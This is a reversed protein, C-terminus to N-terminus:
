STAQVHLPTQLRYGGECSEIQLGMAKLRHLESYVRRFGNLPVRQVEPWGREFLAVTSLPEQPALRQQQALALLLRRMPGRRRLDHRQGRWTLWRGQADLTGPELPAEPPAERTQPSLAAWMVEEVWREEGPRWALPDADPERRGDHASGSLDLAGLKAALQRQRPSLSAPSAYGPLGAAREACALLLHGLPWTPEGRLADCRSTLGLWRLAQAHDQQTLAMWALFLGGQSALGLMGEQEALTVSRELTQRARERDVDVHSLGVLMLGNAQAYAGQASLAPDQTLLRADALAGARLQERVLAQVLSPAIDEMGAARALAHARWLHARASSAHGQAQALLGEQMAIFVDVEQDPDSANLASLADLAERALELKGASMAAVSTYYEVSKRTLAPSHAQGLQRAQALTQLAAEFMGGAEQLSGLAALAEVRLAEPLQGSASLLAEIALMLRDLRGHERQEKYLALLARARQELPHGALEKLRRDLEDM